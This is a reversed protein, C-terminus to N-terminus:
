DTRGATDSETVALARVTLVPQNLKVVKRGFAARARKALQVKIGAGITKARDGRKLEVGRGNTGEAEEEGGRSAWSTPQPM